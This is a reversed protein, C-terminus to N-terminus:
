KGAPQDEALVVKFGAQRATNIIETLEPLTVDAHALVLLSPQDTTVAQDQLWKGLQPLSLLGPGAYIQGSARVTIFHTTSVKDQQAAPMTTLVLGPSLVYRSAFLTFFLGILGVNVYFLADWGRPPPTLHSALDLPRTIL